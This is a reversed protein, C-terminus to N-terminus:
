SASQSQLPKLNFIALLHTNVILRENDYRDILIKLAIKYNTNSLPLYSILQSAEGVPSSKLYNFKQIDPLKSSDVSAMFQEYFPTWNQYQGNFNPLSFKPMKLSACNPSASTPAPANELSPGPEVFQELFKVIRKLEFSIKCHFESANILEEQVEDDADPTQELIAANLLEAESLKQEFLAQRVELDAIEDPTVDNKDKALIPQTKTLTKTIVGTIASRSRKLQPLTKGEYSTM